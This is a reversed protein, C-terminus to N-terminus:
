VWGLRQCIPRLLTVGRNKALFEPTEERGIVTIASYEKNSLAQHRARLDRHGLPTSLRYLIDHIASGQDEALAFPEPITVEDAELGVEEKLEELLQKTPNIQSLSGAPATEWCGAELALTGARKGLLLGDPCFLVGTVGLPRLALGFQRLDPDQSLAFHHRYDSRQLTIQDPRYAALSFIPGNFLQRNGRHLERQWLLEIRDEAAKPLPLQPPAEVVLFNPELEHLTVM